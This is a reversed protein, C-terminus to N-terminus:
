LSKKYLLILGDQEAHELVLSAELGQLTAQPDDLRFVGSVQLSNLLPDAIKIQQASYRNLEVVVDSLRTGNFVLQQRQWATAQQVDTNTVASLGQKKRVVVQQKARVRETAAAADSQTHKDVVKVEGETVTILAQEQERHINFATGVATVTVEDFEVVFPRQGDKAVMFYAEGRQLKLGRRATSYDVGVKTNTNLILTSGDDLTITKQEGIATRFVSADRSDEPLLQWTLLVAVVIAAAAALARRGFMPLSRTIKFHNSAHIPVPNVTQEAPLAEDPLHQVVGLDQWLNEIQDFAERQAVGQSLWVAFAQQDAASVQDSRLRAIWEAAEDLLQNNKLNMNEM